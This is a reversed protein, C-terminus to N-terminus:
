GWTKSLLQRGEIVVITDNEQSTSIGEKVRLNPM